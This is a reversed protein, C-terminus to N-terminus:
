KTAIQDLIEKVQPEMDQWFKTYDATNQYFPVLGMDDLKKQQDADAMAKKVGEAVIDVLEKPTGVPFSLGRTPPIYKAKYGQADATQVGPLYKSEVTDFVAVARLEGSKVAGKVEAVPNVEADTHGGLLSARQEGQQDFFVTAFRVGAAKELLLITMHGPSLLGSSAVKVGGPSAKAADVLDKLSKYKGSASVSISQPDKIYNAIPVLDKLSYPAKRKADMYTLLTAPLNTFAMNYGDPKAKVFETLGVQSSGGAKNVVSISAGLVKELDVQLTRATIDTSGGAGWPVMFIITKGKEPYVVKKAPEPAKTPAAAPAKTPEAAPAKAPEAPKAPATAAPKAPASTPAPAAQQCGAILAVM